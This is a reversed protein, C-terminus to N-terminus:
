FYQWFPLAPSCFLTPTYKAITMFDKQTNLRLPNYVSLVCFVSLFEEVGMEM